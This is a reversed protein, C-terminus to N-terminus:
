AAGREETRRVAQREDRLLGELETREQVERLLDNGRLGALRENERRVCVPNSCVVRLASVWMCPEGTPALRCPNGETCRCHRCTGPVPKM